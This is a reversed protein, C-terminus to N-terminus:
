RGLDSLARDLGESNAVIELSQWRASACSRSRKTSPVALCATHDLSIYVLHNHNDYIYLLSRGWLSYNRLWCVFPTNASFTGHEKLDPGLQGHRPFAACLPTGIPQSYTSRPPRFSHGQQPDSRRGLFDDSFSALHNSNTSGPSVGGGGRAV